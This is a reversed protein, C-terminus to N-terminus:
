SDEEYATMKQVADQVAKDLSLEGQLTERQAILAKRKSPPASAFQKNVEDLRTQIADIEAAIQAAVQSLDQKQAAPKPAQNAPPTKENAGIVAAEARASQFALRVVEAALNRTTDEYIADSPLGTAQVKTTADRYWTIVANLHGLIADRNLAPLEQALSISLAGLVTFLMAVALWGNKWRLKVSTKM